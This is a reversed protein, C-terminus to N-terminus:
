RRETAPCAVVREADTRYTFTRQGARLYLEFGPILNGNEVGNSRQCELSNVTWHQRVRKIVRVDQVALGLRKALDERALQELKLLQTARVRPQQVRLAGDQAVPCLVAYKKAVHVEHIREGNRLTVVYGPTIVQQYMSGPLACGLSSDPWERSEIAVLTLQEPGVALAKSVEHKARQVAEAREGTLSREDTIVTSGIAVMSMLLTLVVRKARNM